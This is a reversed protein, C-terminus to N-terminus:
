VFGVVGGGVNRIKPSIIVSCIISLFFFPTIFECLLCRSKVIIFTYPAVYVSLILHVHSSYDNLVVHLCIERVVIM